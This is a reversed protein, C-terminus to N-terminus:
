EQESQTHLQLITNDILRTEGFRAAVLLVARSIVKPLPDLNEADVVAVYDIATPKAAEIKERAVAALAEGDREGHQLAVEAAQLGAHLATAKAREDPSLYANRSSMALGDPERISPCVVIRIPLNLDRAMRRVVQCQQYDKQGFYAASAPIIQFLKLVITAVGRFHIPRIAGEWRSTLGEVTVYTRHDPAYITKTDPSFVAAVGL